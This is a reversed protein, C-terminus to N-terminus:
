EKPNEETLLMDGDQYPMIPRTDYGGQTFWLCRAEDNWKVTVNSDSQWEVVGGSLRHLRITFKLPKGSLVRLAKNAEDQSHNEITM